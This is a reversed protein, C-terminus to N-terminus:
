PGLSATDTELWVRSAPERSISWDSTAKLSVTSSTITVKASTEGGRMAFTKTINGTTADFTQVSTDSASVSALLGDDGQQDIDFEFVQGGDSTTLVPGLPNEGRANALQNVAARANPPTI